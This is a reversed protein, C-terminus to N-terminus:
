GVWTIKVRAQGLVIEDGPKLGLGRSGRPVAIGRGQRVVSTGQASNDDIVRPRSTHPDLEIRAHRRSVSRNVEDDGDTFAIHNIRLLQHRSDRVDAGRGIAVPLTAFTYAGQIATGNTVIVDLQIPTDRQARAEPAVRALAVHFPQTWSPDAADVFSVTVDIDADALECGASRLRRVIRQQFAPPGEVIADLRARDEATPAAFTVTISTYPFTVRSRGAPHAHRAIEDAAREILEFAPMPQSDTATKARGEFASTLRSEINGPSSFLSKLKRTM